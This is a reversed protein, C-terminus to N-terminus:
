CLSYPQVILQFKILILVHGVAIKLDYPLVINTFPSIQTEFYLKLEFTTTSCLQGPRCM